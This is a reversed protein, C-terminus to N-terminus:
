FFVCSNAGTARNHKIDILIQRSLLIGKTWERKDTVKPHNTGDTRCGGKMRWGDNGRLGPRPPPTPRKPVALLQIKQGGFRPEFVGSRDGRRALARPGNPNSDNVRRSGTGVEARCVKAMGDSACRPPADRRPYEHTGISGRENDRRIKRRSAPPPPPARRPTGSFNSGRSRIRRKQPPARRFPPVASGGKDRRAARRGFGPGRFRALTMVIM